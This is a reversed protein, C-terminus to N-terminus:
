FKPGLKENVHEIGLLVYYEVDNDNVLGEQNVYLFGRLAKGTFDMESVNEKAIEIPFKADVVRTVMQEKIVGCSMKNRYMFGLGGFMRKEEFEIGKSIFIDRIRAGIIENFAM